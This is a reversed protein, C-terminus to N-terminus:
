KTACVDWHHGGRGGCHSYACSFLQSQSRTPPRHTLVTVGYLCGYAYQLWCSYPSRPASPTARWEGTSSSFVFVAEEHLTFEVYIVRFFAEESAEEDGGVLLIQYGFTRPKDVSHVWEDFEPIPPLLLHRRHLPDCVVLEACDRRKLLVLGGCIDSITWDGAPTPLFSLTFDAALAVAKAASASPHPPEAPHFVRRFDLFGILPPSHLKHYRRLFPRDVVVRRFSACVASARILDCPTPLRLFIEPLLDDPIPLSTMEQHGHRRPSSNQRHELIGM